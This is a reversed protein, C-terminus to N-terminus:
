SDAQRRDNTRECEEIGSGSKTKLQPFLIVERISQQRAFLMVMRDIGMGLGGTPPMGYELAELFDEDAIEAEDDCVDPDLQQRFRERQELPDNLESFANAVEMGGVFGEFRETLRDNGRKRKALPSMEVPYDLLFTPRILKPEVFTSLLEDILRGRDKGPEVELGMDLMRSRLSATDPFGEFDIGSYGEIAERLTLRQWPLAFDITTGCWDIETTGLVQRATDAFMKEVMSMMDHYDAYGQYCELLTFEPNHRVSVGENRFTRGIEYVREFGGIVLRKLHLELAIRLYLDEGLAHHHTVFPRATAGGAHPQLVPTEVEVFGQNDLFSRIASITRSRLIFIGRTAENSILDLYRQRYRKEVDALGHWKEPLPHLSKCLMVLGSVELSLEGARTLFLRGEAGVFDGIDIDDLLRYRVAGLVDQRLSLQIKGSGDRIDLFAMRGMSRRAIVRGALSMSDPIDKGQGFVARAEAITHSPHYVHPYPDIGGARLRNLSNLRQETIRQYRSTMSYGTDSLSLKERRTQRM